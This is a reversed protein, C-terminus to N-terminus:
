GPWLKAATQRSPAANAAANGLRELIEQWSGAAPQKAAISVVDPMEEPTLRDRTALQHELVTLSAESAEVRSRQRRAVRDRLLAAPADCGLILFPAHHALAIRRFAERDARRLFAADVVVPFGADLVRSAINDLRRYTLKTADAAYIGSALGSGSRALSPVGYARKREIDSRARVAGLLGALAETATSKGSGSVGHTIVLAPKRDHAFSSALRLYGRFAELLRDQEADPIGLQRSRLLHVKARVLARYVLYFRLVGIGAYDGTAELYRNLFRWALDSRGRDTFDMMLFAVESIVDIWRLNDNFEICDFAVPRGKLMAINGLHLDGHCERVSGGSRRAAFAENRLDHEGETWQRLRELTKRDSPVANCHVIQDFNQLAQALVADPTGFADAAAAIRATGHFGAIAAALADAHESGLKDCALLRSALVDQPFERMKVAYELLPGDGEIRPAELSGRIAVAGLYLEPALRRNLRVEEWCYYRRTELRTFDLFGLDVPKKIKYALDGTLIVWSIHTEVVQITKVPHPYCLPDRLAEIMERDGTPSVVSRTPSAALPAPNM